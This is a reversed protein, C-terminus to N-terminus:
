MVRCALLDQLPLVEKDAARAVLARDAKGEAQVLGREDHRGRVQRRVPAAPGLYTVYPAHKRKSDNVHTVILPRGAGQQVGMWAPVLM